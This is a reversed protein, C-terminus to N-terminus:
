SSTSCSWRPRSTPMTRAFASKARTIFAVYLGVLILLEIVLNITAANRAGFIAQM